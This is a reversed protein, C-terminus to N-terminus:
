KEKPTALKIWFYIGHLTLFLFLAFHAHNKAFDLAKKKIEIEKKKYFMPFQIPLLDSITISSKSNGNTYINWHWVHNVRGNLDIKSILHSVAKFFYSLPKNSSFSNIPVYKNKLISALESNYLGSRDYFIIDLNSYKSLQNLYGSIYSYVVNYPGLNINLVLDQYIM